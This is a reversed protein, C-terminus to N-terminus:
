NLKRRAKQIEKKAAHMDALFGEDAHLRAVTAAGMMRGAVVDSHWHVNCVNRSIGFEKGRELIVNANEPFVEALVLAWAWGIATHGSPYAGDKSLLEESDPTCTPSHNVMFPRNRMYHKKATYTSLAADTLVRRLIIYLNPTTEESIKVDLVINFADTADPFSLVADRAAQDKRPGEEMAVYNQAIEQDLLFATSGEEPPPSLLFLSNPLERADLYGELIGPQVEELNKSLSTARQQSCSTALLLGAVIIFHHTRMDKM